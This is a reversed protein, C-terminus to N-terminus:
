TSILVDVRTEGQRSCVVPCGLNELAACLDGGVGGMTFCFAAEEVRRVDYGWNPSYSIILCDSSSFMAIRRTYDMKSSISLSKQMPFLQKWTEDFQDPPLAVYQAVLNCIVAPFYTTDILIKAVAPVVERLPQGTRNPVHGFIARSLANM